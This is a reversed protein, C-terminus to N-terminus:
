SAELPTPYPFAPVTADPDADYLLHRLEAIEGPGAPTHPAEDPHTMLWQLREGHAAARQQAVLRRLDAQLQTLPTEVDAPKPAPRYCRDSGLPMPLAGGMFDRARALDDAATM